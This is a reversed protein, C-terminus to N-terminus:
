LPSPPQLLPLLLLIHLDPTLIWASSCCHRCCIYWSLLSGVWCKRNGPERWGLILGSSVLSCLPAAFVLLVKWWSFRWLRPRRPPSPTRPSLFGATDCGPRPAKRGQLPLLSSPKDTQPTPWRDSHEGDPSGSRWGGSRLPVWFPPSPPSPPSQGCLLFSMSAHVIALFFVFFFQM